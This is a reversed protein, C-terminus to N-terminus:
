SSSVKQGDLCRSMQSPDASVHQVHVAASTFLSSLSSAVNPRADTSTSQVSARSRTPGLLLPPLLLTRNKSVGMKWLSRKMVGGALYLLLPRPLSSSPRTTVIHELPLWCTPSASGDRGQVWECLTMKTKTQTVKRGIINQCQCHFTTIISINACPKLFLSATQSCQAACSTPDGQLLKVNMLYSISFVTIYNWSLIMEKLFEDMFWLTCYLSSM